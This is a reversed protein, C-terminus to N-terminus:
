LLATPCIAFTVSNDGFHLGVAPGIWEVNEFDAEVGRQEFVKAMDALRKPADTQALRIACEGHEATYAGIRECVNKAADKTSRAKALPAVKGDERALTIMPRVKLAGEGMEASEGARGGAVLNTMANLCIYIDATQQIENMAAVAESVTAGADRLKCAKEIQWAQIPGLTNSDYCTVPIEVAAAATAAVNHTGSLSAAITICLVEDAGAAACAEYAQVFQEPSPAASRPVDGTEATFAAMKAYFESPPLEFGDIFCEDGFRVTLAAVHVGAAELAHVNKSSMSDTVIAFM